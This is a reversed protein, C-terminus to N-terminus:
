VFSKVAESLEDYTDFLSELGTIEMIKQCNEDLGALKLQYNDQRCYDRLSLLQELAQSDIFGIRTMDLVIGTTAKTIVSDITNQLLKTFEGTFEGQLEVVAIDNYKQTEIKM